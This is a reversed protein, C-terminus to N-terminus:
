GDEKRRNEIDFTQSPNWAVTVPRGEDEVPFPGSANQRVVVLEGGQELDIVYRTIM